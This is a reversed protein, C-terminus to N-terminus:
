PKPVIPPNHIIIPPGSGRDLGANGGPTPTPEPTPEPPPSSATTAESPNNVQVPTSSKVTTTDQTNQMTRIDQENQTIRQDIAIIADDMKNIRADIASIEANIGALDIEATAPTSFYGVMGLYIAAMSLTILRPVNTGKIIKM